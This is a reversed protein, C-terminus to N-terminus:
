RSAPWTACDPRRREPIACAFSYQKDEPQEELVTSRFVVSDAFPGITRADPRAAAASAKTMRACSTAMM